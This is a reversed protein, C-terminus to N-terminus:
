TKNKALIIFRHQNNVLQKHENLEAQLALLRDFYKEVSFNPYEWPIQKVYYILGRIDYFYQVPFSEKSFVIEFDAEMLQQKAVALSWELREPPDIQLQNALKQGNKSGVQQTIFHGNKKLVRRVEQIDYDAHHNLVIDFTNNQFTLRNNKSIWEVTVGLPELRKKVLRYNPLWGETVSTKNYPHEFAQLLEGGGTRIDLLEHSEKLMEGVISFYNWPLVENEWKGELYSFDWGIIKQQEVKLWEKKLAEKM